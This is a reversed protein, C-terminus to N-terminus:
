FSRLWAEASSISYFFRVKHSESIVNFKEFTLNALIDKSYIWAFHKLGANEMEPFWIKETYDLAFAWVGMLLRNDNLVKSCNFEKLYKIMLEGGHQISKMTQINQWNAYLWANIHNYAVEIKDDRYLRELM